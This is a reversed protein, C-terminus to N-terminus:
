YIGGFNANNMLFTNDRSSTKRIDTTLETLNRPDSRVQVTDINYIVNNNKSSSNNIINQAGSYLGLNDLTPSLKPITYDSQSNKKGKGKFYKYALTGLGAVTAGGAITGLAVPNLLLSLGKSTILVKNLKEFASILTIIPNLLQTTIFGFSIANKLLKSTQMLHSFINLLKSIQPLLARGLEQTITHFQFKLGGIAETYEKVIKTDEEDFPLPYTAAEWRKTGPFYNPKRLIDRDYGNNNQNPEYYYKISSSSGVYGKGHLISNLRDHSSGKEYSVGSVSDVLTDNRINAAVRKRSGTEFWEKSQVKRIYQNLLSGISNYGVIDRFISGFINNFSKAISKSAQLFSNKTKNSSENAKDEIKSFTESMTDYFKDANKNLTEFIKSINNLAAEAKSTDTSLKISVKEIYESM